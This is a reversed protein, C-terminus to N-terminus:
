RLAMYIAVAALLTPGLAWAISVWSPEDYLSNRWFAPHKDERNTSSSSLRENM